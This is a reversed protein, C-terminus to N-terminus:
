LAHEVLHGNNIELRRTCLIEAERPEHTVLLTTIRHARQYRVFLQWIHERTAWDLASFPEDLLLLQPKGILARALAVRQQEGGSLMKPLRDKLHTIAMEDLLAMASARKDVASQKVNHLALLLNQTVTLHPFLYLHQNLYRCQRAWVPLPAQDQGNLIITGSYSMLGAIANLLTSKGSGSPGVVAVNTNPAVEFNVDRLIGCHLHQIRLTM